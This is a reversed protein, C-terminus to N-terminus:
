YCIVKVIWRILCFKVIGFVKEEGDCIEGEINDKLDGFMTERKLFYKIFIILEKLIDM